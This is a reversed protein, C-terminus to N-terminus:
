CSSEGEDLEAIEGDHFVVVSCWWGHTGREEQRRLRQGSRIPPRGLGEDPISGPSRRIHDIGAVVLTGEEPTGEATRVAV